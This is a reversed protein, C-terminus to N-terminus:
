EDSFNSQVIYELQKRSGLFAYPWFFAKTVNNLGEEVDAVLELDKLLKKTEAHSSNTFWNQWGDNNLTGIRFFGRVLDDISDVTEPFVPLTVFAIISSTYCATIIITFVWYFGTFDINKQINDFLM